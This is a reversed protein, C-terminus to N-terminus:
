AAAGPTATGADAALVRAFFRQEMEPGPALEGVDRGGHVVVVRDAVRAVEDLHHSSVLVAAGEDALSRVLERVLVVGRPDLASTPEDLVLASPGHVVACAIGLRQANGASLTRARADAWASLDLRHVVAASAAPVDARAVGQLLAATRVNETVALDPSVLATGVVHGFRCAAATGLVAPDAGLVRATGQEPRLRGTLVRLATTKGAGNLGVMAVIEGPAVELSLGDLAPRDGFRHRLDHLTLSTM